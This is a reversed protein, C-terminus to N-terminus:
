NVNFRLLHLSGRFFKLFSMRRDPHRHDPQRGEPTGLLHLQRRRVRERGFISRDSEQFFTKGIKFLKKKNRLNECM